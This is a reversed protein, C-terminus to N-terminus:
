RWFDKFRTPSVETYRVRHALVALAKRPPMANRDLPVCRGHGFV